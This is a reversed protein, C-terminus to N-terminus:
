KKESKPIDKANRFDIYLQFIKQNQMNQENLYKSSLKKFIKIRWSGDGFPARLKAGKRQKNKLNM